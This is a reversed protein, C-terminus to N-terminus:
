SLIVNAQILYNQLFKMAVPEMSQILSTIKGPYKMSLQQLKHALFLKPDPIDSILDREPITAFTLKSYTAQYGTFQSNEMEELEIFHDSADQSESAEQPLEFVAIIVQLLQPWLTALDPENLMQDLDTLIRTAGICVTKRDIIGTVKQSDAIFLKEIVMRFMKQQLSEIMEYLAQPGFKHVFLSLFVLLSRVYKTTKSHTLRQFLVLFIQKLLPPSISGPESFIILYNIIKFGLHDNLKSAILKQFVGLLPELKGMDIIKKSCNRVYGLILSTLPTFNAKEWLFPVLLFPFLEMYPDPIAEQNYQELLLALIQFAYPNFEQIEQVLIIQFIPFLAQEFSHVSSNSNSCAIRISLSLTEFLYHNFNPKSPNKSVQTVKETLKPLIVNFYPLLRERLLSFTRLIAKIAYENEQSGPMQLVNFLGELMPLSHSEFHEPKILTVNSSPSERLTLIKEICIAAYSHIVVIPSKLHQIIQPFLPVLIENISLQNRFIVVYKLADAKLVPLENIDKRELEPRIVNNFFSSIDILDNTSTTGLRVSSGKVVLSTVLYIAANKSKWNGQPNQQYNLLMTEIYKSFVETMPKEFYRALSKVLDCAARRRTQVDAGEVDRRIYEEPNDEFLEEELQRFEMNPIIVRSCMQQLILEKEFIGKQLGLDAVTCLFKIANFVMVDYKVKNDTADLLSWVQQVFGPIYSEFETSYLQAFLVICDCIQSKLNELIGPEEDNDTELVESKFALLQVFNEMWVQMNDEFFEALDQSNLSLFIESCYVLSQFLVKMNQKNNVHQPILKTIWLFLETFPKAFTDLVFKIEKWLEESKTEYQYRKFLSDATQLIGTIVRFNYQQCSENLKLIMNELLNPWKEPFDERGILSVAESLQKQVKDESQLMLTIIVNKCYQRDQDNIKNAQPDDDLPWHKKIFNKFAVAACLKVTPDPLNEQQILQLLQQIFGPQNQCNEILKEAQRRIQADPSLTQLLYNLLQDVM